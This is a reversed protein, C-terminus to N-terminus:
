KLSPFNKKEETVIGIPQKIEMTQLVQGAVKTGPNENHHSISFSLRGM